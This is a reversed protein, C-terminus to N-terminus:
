LMTKRLVLNIYFYKIIDQTDDNLLPNARRPTKNLTGGATVFTFYHVSNVLVGERQGCSVSAQQKCQVPSLYGSM